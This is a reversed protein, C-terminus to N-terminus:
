SGSNPTGVLRNYAVRSSLRRDGTPYLGLHGPLQTGNDIGSDSVDVVFGSDAFQAATFGREALWALYGPGSPQSGSLQGALIQGQREDQKKPTSYVQISVVDPRAAVESLRDPPLHLICNVYGLERSQRVWQRKLQDLFQLTPANAAADEVLQIAFLDPTAENRLAKAVASQAAPHLKHAPLYEGEWQIQANDKLSSRLRNLPQADGYVLYTNRPIYTVVQWGAERLSQHWEPKIPGAFQVLHLKKGAFAAPQPAAAQAMGPATRIAGAHLEVLNDEERLTVGAQGEVEARRAAPLRWFQFSGYDTILTGGSAQLLNGAEPGATEFKLEATAAQGAWLAGAWVAGAVLLGRLLRRFPSRLNISNSVIPSLQAPNM